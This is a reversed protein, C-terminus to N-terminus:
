PWYEKGLQTWVHIIWSSQMKLVGARYESNSPLKKLNHLQITYDIRYMDTFTQNRTAREYYYVHQTTCVCMGSRDFVDVLAWATSTNSHM